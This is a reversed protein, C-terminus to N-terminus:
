KWSGMDRGTYTDKATLRGNNITLQYRSTQTSPHGDVTRGEDWNQNRAVSYDKNAKEKSNRSWVMQNPKDSATTCIWTNTAKDYTGGNYNSVTTVEAYEFHWDPNISGPAIVVPLKVDNEFELLWTYVFGNHNKNNAVTQKINKLLGWEEPFFTPDSKKVKITGKPTFTQSNNGRTYTYGNAYNYVYYGDVESGGSVSGKDNSVSYTPRPITYTKGRFKATWGEPEVTQLLNEQTSGPLTVTAKSDYSYRKWSIEFGDKSTSKDSSGTQSKNVSATTQSKSTEVSTWLPKVTAERDDGVEVSYDEHTGDSKNIRYLFYASVKSNTPTEKCSGEVFGEDTVRTEVKVKIVGKPTFTQSNNGRTYTYGNAYDYVYYGNVESGGSVSGKDNSVSYTPRPITYTKGRFKATWGEPEVTQLLNEQTSGPLTVTAKSDYSYRKWSIEFGDKSTSKDSSGTQSKNVSATTQSKSTEVSTWLPKVTAERDDGVEVSYDEHTGDSKNIRYLFYASVKSNTPTEKCSGEVFDESTITVGKEMLLIVSESADQAYGIYRTSITNSLRAAEKGTVPSTIPDVKTVKDSFSVEEFDFVVSVDGDNFELKEHYFEYPMVVKDTEFGNEKNGSLKDTRGSIKAVGDETRVESSEGREIPNNDKHKYDFGSVDKRYEEIGKLSRKLTYSYKKTTKQEGIQTVKEWRCEETTPGTVEREKNQISYKPTTDRKSDSKTNLDETLDGCGFLTIVSMLLMMWIGSM